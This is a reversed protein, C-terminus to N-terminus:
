SKFEKLLYETKDDKGEINSSSKANIEEHVTSEDASSIDLGQPTTLDSFQSLGTLEGKSNFFDSTNFNPPLQSSLDDVSQEFDGSGSGRGGAAGEAGHFTSKSRVIVVGNKEPNDRSDM